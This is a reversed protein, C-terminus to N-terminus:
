VPKEVSIRTGSISKREQVVEESLSNFVLGHELLLNERRCFKKM